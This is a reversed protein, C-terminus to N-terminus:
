GDRPHVSPISVDLAHQSVRELIASPDDIATGQSALGDLDSSMAWFLGFGICTIRGKKTRLVYMMAAASAWLLGVSLKSPRPLEISPAFRVAWDVAQIGADVWVLVAWLMSQGLAPPLIAAILAGTVAVMVWPSALLNAPLFVVPMRLFVPFVIPATAWQAVIPIGFLAALRPHSRAKSPADVLLLIAATAAFSCQTGLDHVAMPSRLLLIWAGAGLLAMGYPRRGIMLGVGALSGMLGARVASNPAGCALIYAWCAVAPLIWSFGLRKSQPPKPSRPRWFRLRRLRSFIWLAMGGILGVHFGSVALLHSLGASSFAAKTIPPLDRKDGTLIGLVLGKSAPSGKVEVLRSRLHDVVSANWRASWSAWSYRQAPLPLSRLVSVRGAYGKPLYVRQEDFAGPSEARKFPRCNLHALYRAGPVLSDSCSFIASRMAGGETTQARGTFRYNFRGAIPPSGVELLGWHEHPLELPPPLCRTSVM